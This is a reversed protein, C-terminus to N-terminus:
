NKMEIKQNTREAKSFQITKKTKTENANINMNLLSQTAKSLNIKCLDSLRVTYILCDAIEEGIHVGKDKM